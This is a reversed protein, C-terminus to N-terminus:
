KVILVPCRARKAVKHSVSGLVMKQWQNLGRSGLVLIDYDRLNAHSVIAPGPDGHIIELQYHVNAEKLQEEINAIKRRRRHNLDDTSVTDLVETKTKSIDIVLLLDVTSNESSLHIAHEAARESHKSGDAALLIKKYM